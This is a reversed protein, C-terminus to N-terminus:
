VMKEVHRIQRYHKGTVHCIGVNHAHIWSNIGVQIGTCAQIHVLLFPCHLTSSPLVQHHKHTRMHVSCKGEIMIASSTKIAECRARTEQTHCRSQCHALKMLTLTEVAREHGNAQVCRMRRESWTHKKLIDSVVASHKKTQMMVCGYWIKSTHTHISIAPWAKM